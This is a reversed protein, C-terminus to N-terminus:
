KRENLAVKIKNRLLIGKNQNQPCKDTDACVKVGNVLKKGCTECHSQNSMSVNAPRVSCLCNKKLRFCSICALTGRPGEPVRVLGHRILVNESVPATGKM